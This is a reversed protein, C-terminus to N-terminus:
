ILNGIYTSIFYYILPLFIAPLLNGVKIKKLGLLNIGIAMILIGGVASMETVLETTLIDKLYKALLTISGQYIFIPIASFATGIGLTSAFVIATIGDLASKAYLTQHNGTLGSELSGVIAMAGICYVLTASVFAKSFNSDGKGFYSEAWNGLRDLRGEIDIKEGILGGIALSVIVLVMNESKIGGVIGIVIVALSIGDMITSKYKENIGNKLLIGLLSGIIVALSNVITGLM